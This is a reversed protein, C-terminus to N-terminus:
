CAESFLTFYFPLSKKLPLESVDSVELCQPGGGRAKSKIKSLTGQKLTTQGHPHPSRLWGGPWKGRGFFAKWTQYVQKTAQSTGKPLVTPQVHCLYTM